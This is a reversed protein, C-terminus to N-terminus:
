KIILLSSIHTSVLYGLMQQPFFYMAFGEGTCMLAEMTQWNKIEGRKDSMFVAIITVVVGGCRLLDQISLSNFDFIKRSSETQTEQDVKKATAALIFLFLICVRFGVTAM